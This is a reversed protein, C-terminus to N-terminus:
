LHQLTDLRIARKKNIFLPSIRIAFNSTSKLLTMNLINIFLNSDTMIGFPLLQLHCFYFDAM